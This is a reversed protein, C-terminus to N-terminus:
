HINNQTKKKKKPMLKKKVPQDGERYPFIEIHSHYVRIQAM